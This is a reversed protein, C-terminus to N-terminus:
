PQFLMAARYAGESVFDRRELGSHKRYSGSGGLRVGLWYVRAQWPRDGEAIIARRLLDDAQARSLDHSHYCFDHLVAPRRSRGNVDLVGRLPRPISALDTIFGLPVEVRLDPEQWLLPATTAWLDPRYLAEVKLLSVFM